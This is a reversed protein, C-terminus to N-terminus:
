PTFLEVRQHRLQLAQPLMPLHSSVASQPNHHPCFFSILSEYLSINLWQQFKDQQPIRDADNRIQSIGHNEQGKQLGGGGDGGGLGGGGDGGGLGGGGDGGGLGGGGDGGGLYTWAGLWRIIWITSLTSAVFCPVVTIAVNLCQRAHMGDAGGGHLGGGGDGGGLGGGGDGGGLGGGGDGGALGGGGDGGGLGGGGDGGGLGGGGGGGGLGGGGDGGALGGGGNGGGLYAQIKQRSRIEMISSHSEPISPDARTARGHGKVPASSQCCRHSLQAVIDSGGAHLEGGGDGGGLGGGGGGGGLGGGGDGGGLGGGGDGGGLHARVGTQCWILGGPQM